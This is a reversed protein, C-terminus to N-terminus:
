LSSNFTKEIIPHPSMQFCLHCPKKKGLWHHLQILFSEILDFVKTRDAEFLEDAHDMVIILGPLSTSLSIMDDLLRIWHEEGYPAHSAGIAVAVADCAALPNVAIPRCDIYACRIGASDLEAKLDVVEEDVKIAEIFHVACTTSRITDSYGRM